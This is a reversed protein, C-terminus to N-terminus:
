QGVNFQKLVPMIAAMNPLLVDAGSDLVTDQVMNGDIVWPQVSKPSIQPALCGLLGMDQLTLNTRAAGLLVQVLGPLRPLTAPSLLKDRAAFLVQQQRKMREFDSSNHRIRAYILATAGDMHFQGAPFDIVMTNIGDRAPYAPDDLPQPINIDIGGIADIGQIFSDFNVVAYRDVRLGFTDSLVTSLAAPGGGPVGFIEGYHYATNIRDSGVQGLKPLPVYLDRPISLLNASKSAFNVGLLMITDTRAAQQYNDGGGDIGLMLINIRGPGDCTSPFPAAPPLDPTPLALPQKSTIYVKTPSPAQTLPPSQTPLSSAQATVTPGVASVSAVETPPAVVVATATPVVFPTVAAPIPTTLAAVAAASIADRSAFALGLCAVVLWFAVFLALVRWVLSGPVRKSEPPM